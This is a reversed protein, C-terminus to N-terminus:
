KRISGTRQYNVDFWDIIKRLGTNIDTFEQEPFLEMLKANSATKILQGDSCTVDYRILNPDLDFIERINEVLDRISIETTGSCILSGKFSNSEFSKKIIQAFDDVYLFQRKAVGTGKVIFPIDKNKSIFCKHILGPIVHSDKLHFNDHIGYLNTPILCKFNSGTENNLLRVSVEMMRKAYSYGENSTHPPGLHLMTEDIPYCINDPFICTSLVFIGEKVSHSKCCKIINQNIDLNDQFIQYNNAMNKYLGGVNAALHIVATPSYKQFLAEVQEPNRLDGDSSGLYVWDPCILQLAKGVMGTGGTVIVTM